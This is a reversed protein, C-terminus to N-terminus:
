NYKAFVKSAKDRIEKYDKIKEEISNNINNEISDINNDINNDKINKFDSKLKKLPLSENKTLCSKLYRKRGDFRSVYIYKLDILKSITTSIKTSTCGCFVALYDNSAFCGEESCDLSDIEMLIIKELANLRTDLWVEKPIWVGKFDRPMEM